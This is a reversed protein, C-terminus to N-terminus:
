LGTDLMLYGTAPGVPGAHGSTHHSSRFSHVTVLPRDSPLLGTVSYIEAM